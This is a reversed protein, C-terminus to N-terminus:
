YAVSTLTAAVTARRPLWNISRVIQIGVSDTSFMSVVNASAGTPTATDGTPSDDMEISAHRAFRLDAQDDDALLIGDGSILSIQTTSATDDTVPVGASVIAPLGFIEGGKVGLNPFAAAGGPGRLRALFTASRPHLVWQAFALNEGAEVLDDVLGSLDADIQALSTGTSASSAGTSTISAPMQDSGNNSADVLAADMAAAVAAALDAVLAREATPAGDRLFESTTVLLAAVMKRKLDEPSGFTVRSVPKAVGDGIWHATTAASLGILRSNFPVRKIGQLKGLITLPRVVAALDTSLPAMALDTDTSAGVGSKLAQVIAEGRNWNQGAAYAAGIARAENGASLDSDNALHGLHLSRLYRVAMLGRPTAENM